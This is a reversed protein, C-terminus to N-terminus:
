GAQQKPKIRGARIGAIVGSADKKTMQRVRDRDWGLKGVITDVQAPTALELQAPTHTAAPAAGRPDFLDLDPGVEYQVAVARLKRRREVEERLLAVEAEARGLVDLVDAPDRGPPPDGALLKNAYERVGPAYDGGLVDVSTLVKRAGAAVFDLACAWPKASGAIAALRPGPDDSWLEDRRAPDDLLGDLPRMVRGIIQSILVISQAPRCVAAVAANPLDIGVTVVNCNVLKRYLGARFDAFAAGREVQDKLDDTV